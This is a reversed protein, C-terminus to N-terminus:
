DRWKTGFLPSVLIRRRNRLYLLFLGGFPGRCKNIRGSWFMREGSLQMTQEKMEKM